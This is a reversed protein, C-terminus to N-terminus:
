QFSRRHRGSRRAAARTRGSTARGAVPRGAAVGRPADERDRQGERFAVRWKIEHFVFHRLALVDPKKVREGAGLLLGALVGFGAVLFIRALASSRIAAKM